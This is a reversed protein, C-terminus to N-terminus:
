ILRRKILMHTNLPLASTSYNGVAAKDMRILGLLLVSTWLFLIIIVLSWKDGKYVCEWVCVCLYVPCLYVCKGWHVAFSCSTIQTFAEAHHVLLCLVLSSVSKAEMVILSKAVDKRRSRGRQRDRFWPIRPGILVARRHFCHTISLMCKWKALRSRSLSNSFVFLYIFLEM